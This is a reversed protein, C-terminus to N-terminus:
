TCRPVLPHMPVLAAFKGACEVASSKSELGGSRFLCAYLPSGSLEDNTPNLATLSRCCYGREKRETM